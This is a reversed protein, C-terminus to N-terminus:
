FQKRKFDYFAMLSLLTIYIISQIIIISLNDFNKVGYTLWESQSFLDIRPFLVSIAKLMSMMSNNTFQQINEAISATLVFVGVMRSLTYFCISVLISTFINNLILTAVICFIIVILTELLMTISWIVLGPININAIIYLTLMIPALIIIASAIYGIMYSLIIKYRSISKSLIFEIEKNEFSRNLTICVFLIFGIIFFLRTIAASFILTTQRQEIMFTSGIVISLSISAIILLMLGIYLRDRVGNLIIYKIIPLM